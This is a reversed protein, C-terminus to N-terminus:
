RVAGRKEAAKPLRSDERIEVSYTQVELDISALDKSCDRPQNLTCQCLETLLIHGSQSLVLGMGILEGYIDVCNQREFEFFINVMGSETAGRSLVWGGCGVIAGSLVQILRAPDEISVAKMEMAWPASTARRADLDPVNDRSVAKDSYSMAINLEFVEFSQSEV